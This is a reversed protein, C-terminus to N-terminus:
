IRGVGGGGEASLSKLGLSQVFLSAPQGGIVIVSRETIGGIIIIHGETDDVDASAARTILRRLLTQEAPTLSRAWGDLKTALGAVDADTITQGPDQTTM